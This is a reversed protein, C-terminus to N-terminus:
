KKQDRVAAFTRVLKGHPEALTRVLKVLPAKLVGMLRAIAEEKTPLNAVTDLEKAGLLRGGISIAVVALKEHEKAFNKLVRASAGPEEQSFALVLPGVLAERMNAFETNEVARQALRNPVVRVYVGVKRAKFRLESLQNATLGRYEAAVVATAKSAIESVEKVLTIKDALKLSM